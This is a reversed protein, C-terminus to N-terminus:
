GLGHRAKLDDAHWPAGRPPKQNQHQVQLKLNTQSLENGKRFDSKGKLDQGEEKSRAALRSQDGHGHQDEPELKQNQDDGTM